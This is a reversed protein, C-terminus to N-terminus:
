RQQLVPFCCRVFLFRRVLRPCSEIELLGDVAVGLAHGGQATAVAVGVGVGVAVIGILRAVAAVVVGIQRAAAVAVVRM